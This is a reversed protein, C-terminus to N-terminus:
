NERLFLVSVTIEKDGEVFSEQKDTYFQRISEDTKIIFTIQM